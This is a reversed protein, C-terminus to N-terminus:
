ILSYPPLPTRLLAPLSLLLCNLRQSSSTSPLLRSSRGSSLPLFCACWCSTTRIVPSDRPPQRTAPAHNPPLYCCFCCCCHYFFFVLPKPAPHKLRPPIHNSPSFPSSFPSSFPPHNTATTTTTNTTTTTTTSPLPLPPLSPLWAAIINHHLAVPRCRLDQPPALRLANGCTHAAGLPALLSVGASPTGIPAPTAQRPTESPSAIRGFCFRLRLIAFMPVHAMAWPSGRGAAQSAIAM